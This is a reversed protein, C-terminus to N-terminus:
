APTGSEPGDNEPKAAAAERRARRDAMFQEFEAKDRAMRLRELFTHFEVAEDELRRLTEERYEDFARNGTANFGRQPGAWRAMKERIREIKRELRERRADQWSQPGDQGEAAQWPGGWRGDYRGDHRGYRAFHGCGMRGSWISYALIAIGAPPFIFFGLISAGIWGAKGYDDLKDVIGTM